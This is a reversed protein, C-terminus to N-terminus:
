GLLRAGAARAERARRSDPLYSTSQQLQMGFYVEANALFRERLAPALGDIVADGNFARAFREIAARPGGRAFGAQAMTQLHAGVAEANPLVGVILPGHVLGGRLADPRRTALDLLFIAGSSTGCM